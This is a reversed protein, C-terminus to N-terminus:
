LGGALLFSGALYFSIDLSAAEFVAGPGGPSLRCTVPSLHCTAPSLHSFSIYTCTTVKCNFLYTMAMSPDFLKSEFLRLLWSQKKPEEKAAEVVERGDVVERVEGVVERGEVVERVEGVDERGEGM